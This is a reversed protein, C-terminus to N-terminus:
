SFLTCYEDGSVIFHEILTLDIMDLARKLLRTSTMDADSPEARGGPHNHALAIYSAGCALSIEAIQRTNFESSNSAGESITKIGILRASSDFLLLLVREKSVMRYSNVLMEGITKKNFVPSSDTAKLQSYRRWLSSVLKIHIASSTNIGDVAILSDIDADFVADLSGFHDILNHATGNTNVRPISGFLLMELLEHDAFGEGSSALYRKYM